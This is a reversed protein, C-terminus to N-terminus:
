SAKRRGKRQEATEEERSLDAFAAESALCGGGRVEVGMSETEREAQWVRTM